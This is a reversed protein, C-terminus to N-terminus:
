LELVAAEVERLDACLRAPPERFDNYPNQVAIFHWGTGQAAARDAERDGIFVAEDPPVRERSLVRELNELKPVQSGYVGRFYPQWGRKRVIRRLPEDPTSSNVYLAHSSALRPLVEGAGAVEACTVAHEECINNYAEAYRAVLVDEPEATALLAAARAHRVIERLVDYRDRERDSALAQAVLRRGESGLPEFIDFYASRKVENSDVLVGDFDFAVCRLVGM